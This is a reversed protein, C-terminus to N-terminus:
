DQAEGLNSVVDELTSVAEELADAVEAARTGKDGDQLSEPMNDYYEREEQAIEELTARAQDILEAVAAIRARRAKNM